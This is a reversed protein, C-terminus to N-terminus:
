SSRWKILLWATGPRVIEILTQWHAWVAGPYALSKLRRRVEKPDTSEDDSWLVWGDGCDKAPLGVDEFAQVPVDQTAYLKWNM